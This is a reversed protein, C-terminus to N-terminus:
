LICPVCQNCATMLMILNLRHTTLKARTERVEEAKFLGWGIKRWSAEIGSTSKTGSGLAKQYKRIQEGLREIVDRCRLVEANLSNMTTRELLGTRTAAEAIRLIHALADLEQILYQYNYTSGRSSSLAKSVRLALDAASVIDGFAGFSFAFVM